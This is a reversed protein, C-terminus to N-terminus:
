EIYEMIITYDRIDIFLQQQIENILKFHFGRYDKREKTIVRTICEGIIKDIGLIKDGKQIWEKMSMKINKEECYIKVREEYLLKDFNNIIELNFKEELTLETYRKFNYNKYHNREGSVARSIGSGLLKVGLLKQSEDVWEKQTLLIGKKELCCISSYENKPYYCLNLRDGIKLYDIITGVSIKTIKLLDNLGETGNNYLNIVEIVRSSTSFKICCNWDIDNEWDIHFIEKLESNIISNKIYDFPNKDKYKCDIRIMYNNNKNVLYDKLDDIKQSEEGSMGSLTNDKGHGLDGDMEIRFENVDKFKSSLKNKYIEPLDDKNITFDIRRRGLWKPSDEPKFNYGILQMLVNFMMKHPISFGDGCSHCAYGQRVLQYVPMVRETSCDPCIMSVDKSSMRKYKKGDEKNKFYVDVLEKDTTYLDNYGEVIKTGNCSGCGCGNKFSSIRMIGEYKCQEVCCEYIIGKRKGDKTEVNVLDKIKIKSGNNCEYIKGIELDVGSDRDEEYCEKCRTGDKFHSPTLTDTIHGRECEMKIPTNANIYEGIVKYGAKKALKFFEDKAAINKDTNLIISSRNKNWCEKCGHKKLTYPRITDTIHGEPCMMRIPTSANIYEGLIYYDIDLCTEIFRIEGNIIKKESGSKENVLIKLKNLKIKMDEKIKQKDIVM